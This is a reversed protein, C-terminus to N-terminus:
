EKERLPNGSLDGLSVEWMGGGISKFLFRYVKGNVITKPKSSFDEEAIIENRTKTPIWLSGKTNHIFYDRVEQTTPAQM